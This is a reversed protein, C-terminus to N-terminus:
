IGTQIIKYGARSIDHSESSELTWEFGDSIVVGTDTRLEVYKRIDKYETLDISHTGLIVEFTLTDKDGTKPNLYNVGIDINGEQSITVYKAAVNSKNLEEAPAKEKQPLWVEVDSIGEDGATKNKDGLFPSALGLLLTVVFLLAISVATIKTFRARKGYGMVSM